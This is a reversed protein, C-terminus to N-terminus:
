LHCGDFSSMRYVGLRKCKSGHCTARKGHNVFVSCQESLCSYCNGQSNIFSYHVTKTVTNGVDFDIM